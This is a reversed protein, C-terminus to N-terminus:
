NRERGERRWNGEGGKVGWEREGGGGIGIGGSM